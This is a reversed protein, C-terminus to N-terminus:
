RRRRGLLDGVARDRRRRRQARSGQDRGLHPRARGRQRLEPEHIPPRPVRRGENRDVAADTREGRRPLDPDPRAAPRRRVAPGDDRHLLARPSRDAKRRVRGVGRPVRRRDGGDQARPARVDDLFPIRQRAEGAHGLRPHLPRQEAGGPRARGDGHDGALAPVGARDVHRHPHDEDGARCRRSPRVRHPRGRRDLAFRLRSGRVPARRRRDSRAARRHRHRYARPDKRRPAALM